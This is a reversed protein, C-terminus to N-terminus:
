PYDWIADKNAEIEEITTPKLPDFLFMRYGKRVKEKLRAIYEEKNLLRVDVNKTFIEDMKQHLMKDKYAKPLEIAYKLMKEFFDEFPNGQPALVSNFEKEKDTCPNKILFEKIENYDVVYDWDLTIQPSNKPNCHCKQQHRITDVVKSKCFECQVKEGKVSV